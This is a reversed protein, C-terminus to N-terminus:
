DEKSIENENYENNSKIEVGNFEILEDVPILYHKIGWTGTLKVQWNRERPVKIYKTKDTFVFFLYVELEPNEDMLLEAEHIKNCTIITDKYQTSSCTRGKIEIQINENNTFDIVDFVNNSRKEFKTDFFEDLYPKIEEEIKIGLSHLKHNFQFRNTLGQKSM